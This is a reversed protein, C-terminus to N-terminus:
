GGEGAAELAARLGELEERGREIERMAGGLGAKAELRRVELEGMGALRRVTSYPIGTLRSVGHQSVGRELHRRVLQLKELTAPSYGKFARRKRAGEPPSELEKLRAKFRPLVGTVITQMLGELRRVRAELGELSDVM